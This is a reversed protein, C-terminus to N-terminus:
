KYPIPCGRLAPFYVRHWAGRTLPPDTPSIVIDTGSTSLVLSLLGDAPHLRHYRKRSGDACHLEVRLKQNTQGSASGLRELRLAHLLSHIQAQSTYCRRLCGAPTQATVQISVVRQPSIDRFDRVANCGSLVLMGLIAILFACKKM